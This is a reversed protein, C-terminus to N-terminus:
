DTTGNMRNFYQDLPHINNNMIQKSNNSNKDDFSKPKKSQNSTYNTNSCSGKLYIILYIIALILNLLIILADFGMNIFSFLISKEVKENEIKILENTFDDSCYDYHVKYKIM